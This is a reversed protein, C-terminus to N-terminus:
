PDKRSKRPLVNFRKFAAGLLSPISVDPISAPLGNPGLSERWGKLINLGARLGAIPSTRPKLDNRKLLLATVDDDFETIPASAAADGSTSGNAYERLREILAPILRDPKSADLSACLELLGQEGLLRRDPSRVEVLSDTYILVLDDHGLRITHEDYRAEEIVGLPLNAPGHVGRPIDREDLELVSWKKTAANFWLPRPHGANCISLEDTTSIYTAFVATAFLSSVSSANAGEETLDAFRTNVEQVFQRQDYHNSHKRMLRRLSTAMEAVPAGHGSVDAVVLRTIRGTACSTVFHIDGGIRNAQASSVYPLSYVWCDLGALSVGNDIEANGGWIEMCQLPQLQREGKPM